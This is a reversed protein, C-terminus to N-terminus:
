VKLHLKCLNNGRQVFPRAFSAQRWWGGTRWGEQCNGGALEGGEAGVGGAASRRTRGEVGQVQECVSGNGTSKSSRRTPVLHTSTPKGTPAFFALFSLLTQLSFFLSSLSVSFLLTNIPPWPCRCSSSAPGGEYKAGVYMRHNGSTQGRGVYVWVKVWVQVFIKMKGWVFVVFEGVLILIYM